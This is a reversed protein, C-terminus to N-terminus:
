SSSIGYLYFSSGSVFNKTAPPKLEISSIATTSRYLAATADVLWRYATTSNNENVYYFSSPKNQSALYSPLYMEGSSFCNADMSGGQGNLGLRPQGNTRGSAPTSDGAYIETTSYLSTGDNNFTVFLSSLAYNTSDDRASWRLVLDTYTAPISSFTVSAASSSLVNSSILTYTAM